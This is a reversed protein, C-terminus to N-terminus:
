VGQPRRGRGSRRRGRGRRGGPCDSRRDGSQDNRVDQRQRGADMPWRHLMADAPDEAQRAPRTITAMAFSEEIPNRSHASTSIEFQSCGAPRPAAPLFPFRQRGDATLSSRHFSAATRRAAAWIRGGPRWGLCALRRIRRCNTPRGGASTVRHWGLSKLAQVSPELTIVALSLFFTGGCVLGIRVFWGPRLQSAAVAHHQDVAHALLQDRPRFEHLQRRDQVLELPNGFALLDHRVGHLRCLVAFYLYKIDKPDWKRLRESSTWFVDVWRRVVGDGMCAASPALVLFGCFLMM